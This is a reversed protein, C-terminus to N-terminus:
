NFYLNFPIKVPENNEIHLKLIELITASDLIVGCFLNNKSLITTIEEKKSELFKLDEENATTLLQGLENVKDLEEQYKEAIEKTKTSAM